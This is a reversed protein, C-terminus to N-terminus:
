LDRFSGWRHYWDLVQSLPNSCCPHLSNSGTSVSEILGRCRPPESAACTSMTINRQQKSEAKIRLSEERSSGEPKLGALRSKALQKAQTSSFLRRRTSFLTANLLRQHHLGRLIHHTEEPRSGPPHKFCHLTGNNGTFHSFHMRPKKKKNAAILIFQQPKQPTVFLTFSVDQFTSSCYKLLVMETASLPISSKAALNWVFLGDRAPGTPCCEVTRHM